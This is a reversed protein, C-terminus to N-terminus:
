HLEKLLYQTAQDILHNHGGPLVRLNSNVLKKHFTLIHKEQIIKDYRGIFITVPLSHANAQQIVSSLDPRIGRLATWRQYVLMRKESTSMHSKVFRAVSRQVWGLRQIVQAAFFFGSPYKATVRLLQRGVTTDSAFRYWRNPRIGDPAILILRSIRQALCAALALVFRGGMSYGVLSFTTINRTDLFHQIMACWQVTTLPPTDSLSSSKGHLFLDFSYLTYRNDLTPGMKEFVTHDQGYGHFALLSEPGSGYTGYHLRHNQFILYNKTTKM